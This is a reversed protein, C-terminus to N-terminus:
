RSCDYIDGPNKFCEDCLNTTSDVSLKAIGCRKCVHLIMEVGESM